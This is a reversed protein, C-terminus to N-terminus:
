SMLREVQKRRDIETALSAANGNWGNINITTGGGISSSSGSTSGPESSTGTDSIWVQHGNKMEWHGKPSTNGGGGGGGGGGDGGTDGLGGHNKLWDIVDQPLGSYNPMFNIPINIPDMQSLALYANKIDWAALAHNKASETMLGSNVMYDLYFKYEDRNLEDVALEKLLQDGIFLKAETEEADQLDKIKQKAEIIKQSHEGWGQKRLLALDKEADKLNTIYKDYAQGYGTIFGMKDTFDITADASKAVNQMHQALSAVQPNLQRLTFNATSWKSNARSAAADAERFSKAVNTFGQTTFVAIRAAIESSINLKDLSANYYEASIRGDRYAAKLNVLGMSQRRTLNISQNMYDANAKLVPVFDEGLSMKAAKVSDTVGDLASEYDRAKQLAAEDLILGASVAAYKAKIAETDQSLAEAWAASSRGLNDTLFQQREAGTNLKKYQEALDILTPLTLSKDQTALKRQGTTIDEISVKYDDLTQILRSNEEASGKNIQTLTRVANAYDVFEGVTADIIQNFSQWVQKGVGIAANIETWSHKFMEGFSAQKKNLAETSAALKDADAKLGNLGRQIEDLVAQNKDIVEVPIEIGETEM